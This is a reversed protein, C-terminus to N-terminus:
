DRPSPSTYLLCTKSSMDALPFAEPWRSFRDVITLLYKFGHSDPLPGVLDLHLSGFRRLAPELVTVPSRVHRATKSAQCPLCTRCWQRVQQRMGPWVFRQAVLRLTPRTGPHSLGHLAEFVPRRFDKPVLPRTRGEAVDCWLWVGNHHIKKLQLSNSSGLIDSPDQVSAMASFDVSPLPRVASQLDISNIAPMAPRSLTDAM